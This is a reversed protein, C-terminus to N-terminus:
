ATNGASSPTKERYGKGDHRDGLLQRLASRAEFIYRKVSGSSIGMTASIERISLDEFVALVLCGRRRPSLRSLGDLVTRIEEEAAAIRDPSIDKESPVFAAVDDLSVSPSKRPRRLCLRACTTRLWGRLSDFNALQRRARFARLFCEQVVDEADDAHGLMRLSLAFLWPSNAEVIERWADEDGQQFALFRSSTLEKM